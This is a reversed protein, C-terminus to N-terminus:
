HQVWISKGAVVGGKDKIPRQMLDSQESLDCCVPTTTFVSLTELEHTVM